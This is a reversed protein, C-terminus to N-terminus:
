RSPREAHDLHEWRGGDTSTWESAYGNDCCGIGQWGLGILEGKFSAVTTMWFRQGPEDDPRFEVYPPDVPESPQLQGDSQLVYAVAIGDIRGGVAVFRDGTSELDNISM